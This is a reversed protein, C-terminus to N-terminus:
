DFNDLFDDITMFKDDIEKLSVEKKEKSEEKTVPKSVVAPKDEKKILETPQYVAQVKSKTLTSGVSYRDMISIESLKLKIDKNITKIVINHKVDSVFASIIEQPNSKVERIILLGRKARTTKEFETLKIRKSLGKATIVTVYEFSGDFLNASVVEDDKLNISKVGATKLGITPIESKDYWLGYGKKTAIFVENYAEDSVNIVEDNDKLKICSIPKSYRQVKFDELLTKKVMGNKTFIIIERKDFNSVPISKIIKEDQGIPVINSVHKGLDKWKLEPLEHVPIFLYNGKNTFMLLTDLTNQEYLGSVYDNEKLLTEDGDSSGYSKKSVRKVYGENTVAVIVDEKPIMATADIKIETIEEKIQTKRPSSFEKKIKRLEEKIVKKLEADSSLILEYEKIEEELRQMENKVDTIDTNTLRYLQLMVIATAQKETFSFEKVLNLIADSKNKSARIVKIVEDLISIAKILGELIHYRDKDHALDFKTRRTVVETRHKIFSDIIALVGIQRPRHNVIAIMNFSYSVQMDTNKLLYNIVLDANADKKLDIVIRLEGRSTEDRIDLIGEIKKDIRIDNMKKVLLAKNVEYPIETIVIQYKGKEKIVEYKSKVVIKGKGTEYAEKIEKVGEIVGGTPFDPGPMVSMITDLLCNPSDIRKITADIVEGLNHTPINTAYGASIGTSGNVLLNPFGAPLVTPEELTDDYNPAMEVTNKNIDLLLENSIKSLRAETYRMAAAGDGDMSGNNGHMDIYPTEMKWDQSMRVMADYISSDGHPHYNGMIEGVAKASKRYKKDYTNGSKYMGYLIRRQVPKLGDRVDPLARDLIITKCYRGFREGMIEELSYDYIKQLLESM